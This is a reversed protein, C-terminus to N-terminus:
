FCMFCDPISCWAVVADHTAAGRAKAEGRGTCMAFAPLKWNLARMVGPEDTSLLFLHLERDGLIAQMEASYRELAAVLVDVMCTRKYDMNPPKIQM